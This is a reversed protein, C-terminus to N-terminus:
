TASTSTSTPSLSTTTRPRESWAPLSCRMVSRAPPAPRSTLTEPEIAYGLRAGFRVARLVRLKDEQFRARPNGIARVIKAEIDARGNVYDLIDGNLPDYLQVPNSGTLLASFDGNRQAQTFVSAQSTGGNHYRSGLYDVFFFLKDRKIPGGFTAGFQSQSFPNIPIIPNAHKNTWSDANLRYDQLYGYVSGHFQNTGSKLVSVIGAGNVNGYDAPSNATLVKIEQLSEPAPSYAILNNFTENLDIGELTYNNAQARNGNLNISNTYSTSREISNTGSTGVTSVAGPVYLTLASFDLGNM